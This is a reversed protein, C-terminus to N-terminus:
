RRQAQDLRYWGDRGVYANLWVATNGSTKRVAARVQAAVNGLEAMRRIAEWQAKRAVDRDLWFSQERETVLGLAKDYEGCAILDGAHLLLAREEFRFTDIAGLASPDLKASKLGLEEEILDALAPYEGPFSTRLQRALERVAAQEAKTAPKAVGDLSPPAECS